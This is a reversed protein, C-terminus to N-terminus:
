RLSVVARSMMVIFHHTGPLTTIGQLHYTARHAFNTHTNHTRILLVQRWGSLPDSWRSTFTVEIFDVDLMRLVKRNPIIETLIKQFIAGEDGVVYISEFLVLISMDDVQRIVGNMLHLFSIIIIRFVNTVRMLMKCWPFFSDM